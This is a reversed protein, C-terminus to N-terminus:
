FYNYTKGIKCPIQIIIDIKKQYLYQWLFWKKLVLISFSVQPYLNFYAHIECSAWRTEHGAIYLVLIQRKKQYIDYAHIHITSFLTKPQFSYCSYPEICSWEVRLIKYVITILYAQWYQEIYIKNWKSRMEKKWIISM